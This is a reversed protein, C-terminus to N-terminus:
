ELKPSFWPFNRIALNVLAVPTSSTVKRQGTKSRLVACSSTLCPRVIQYEHRVQYKFGPGKAYCGAEKVVASSPRNINNIVHFFLINFSSYLLINLLTHMLNIAFIM